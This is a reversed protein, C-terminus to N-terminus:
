VPIPVSADTYAAALEDPSLAYVDGTPATVVQRGPEVIATGSATTIEELKTAERAQYVPVPAPPEPEPPRMDEPISAWAEYAELYNRQRLIWSERDTNLHHYSM